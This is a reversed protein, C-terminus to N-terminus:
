CPMAIDLFNATKAFIPSVWNILWNWTFTADIVRDAKADIHAAIKAIKGDEILMDAQKRGTSKVITGNKILIRM